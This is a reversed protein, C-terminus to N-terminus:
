RSSVLMMLWAMLGCGGQREQAPPLALEVFVQEQRREAERFDAAAHEIFREALLARRQLSPERAAFPRL